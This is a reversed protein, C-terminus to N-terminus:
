RYGPLTRGLGLDVIFGLIMLRCVRALPRSRSRSAVAYSGRTQTSISPSVKAVSRAFRGLHSSIKAM